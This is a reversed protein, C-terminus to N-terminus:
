PLEFVCKGEDTQCEAIVQGSYLVEFAGSLWFQQEPQVTIWGHRVECGAPKRPDSSGYVALQFCDGAPFVWVAGSSADTNWELTAFAVSGDVMELRSINLEQGAENILALSDADYVLRIRTSVPALPGGGEGVPITAVSFSCDSDFAECDALRQGDDGLVFVRAPPAELTTDYWFVQEESIPTVVVPGACLEPLDFSEDGTLFLFCAGPRAYPVGVMDSFSTAPTGPRLTLSFFQFDSLFVPATNDVHLALLRENAAAITIEAEEPEQPDDAVEEDEASPLAMEDVYEPLPFVDREVDVETLVAREGDSYEVFFSADDTEIMPMTAEWPQWDTLPTQDGDLFRAETIAAIHGEMVGSYTEQTLYLTNGDPHILAPFVNPRGAMVAIFVIGFEYPLAAVGVERYNPNTAAANHIPSNQWWDIGDEVTHQAVAIEVLSIREPIGYYPWSFPEWVARDRPGEGLIGDHINPPINPLAVLYEAQLWALTELTPNPRFPWLGQELRWENLAALMEFATPQREEQSTIVPLQVMILWLAFVLGIIRSRFRM